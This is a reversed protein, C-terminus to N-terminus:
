CVYWCITYVLNNCMNTPLLHAVEDYDLLRDRRQRRCSIISDLLQNRYLNREEQNCSEEGRSQPLSKFIGNRIVFLLLLHIMIVKMTFWKRRIFWLVISSLDFPYNCFFFCTLIYLYSHLFTVMSLIYLVLFYFLLCARLTFCWEDLFPFHYQM